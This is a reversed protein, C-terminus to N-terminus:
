SLVGSSLAPASGAGRGGRWPEQIGREGLAGEKAGTNVHTKTGQPWTLTQEGGGTCPPGETGREGM